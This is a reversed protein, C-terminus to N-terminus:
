ILKLYVVLYSDLKKKKIKTHLLEIEGVRNISSDKKERNYPRPNKIM